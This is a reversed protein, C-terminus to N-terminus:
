LTGFAWADAPLEDALFAHPLDSPLRREIRRDLLAFERFRV